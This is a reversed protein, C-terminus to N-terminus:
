ILVSSSIPQIPFVNTIIDNKESLYENIRKQSADAQQVISTVWGVTAVPWTLM